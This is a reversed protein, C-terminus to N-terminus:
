LLNDNKLAETLNSYDPKASRRVMGFILHNTNKLLYDTMNSGDMGSVGSVLVKKINNEM